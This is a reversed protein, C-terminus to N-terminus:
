IIDRLKLTISQTAGAVDVKLALESGIPGKLKAALHTEDLSAPAHGDISQILQDAKLGADAAPSGALVGTIRWGDAGCRLRLGTRNFVDAEDRMTSPELILRRGSYDFTVNFRKLVGVGINGSVERNADFGATQLSIRTVPRSVEVAPRGDAGDLALTGVRRRAWVGHTAGTSRGDYPLDAQYRRVLDYRRAFPAILLLSGTDGTDIAFLGAVGDISGKVEPQNDQIHFPIVVGGRPATYNAPRTLTMVGRDFDLHVVFRQLVELGVLALQPEDANFGYSKFAAGRIAAGGIAIREVQGNTAVTHGEGGGSQRSRGAAALHLAAVTAPQLILSGGSDFEAQLVDGGNVRLPVLIRNGATLQFPVDVSDKGTPLEIDSPPASPLGYIGDAVAADVEVADVTEVEDSSTDGGDGSVIRFPLELGHVERYDSYTTVVLDEAQQEQTRALLHTDHDVWAQFPRGGEPGVELVDFARGGERRLGLLAITGAHRSRFWWARSVRYAEDAAVRQADPDGLTYPAGSRGGRWPTVGDFGDKTAYTPWRRRESYRGAAVDEWRELGATQGGSTVSGTSHLSRVTDWRAGGSATRMAALLKDVVEHGGDPQAVSRPPWSGMLTALGAGLIMRFKM